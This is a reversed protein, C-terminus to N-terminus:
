MLLVLSQVCFLRHWLYFNTALGRVCELTLGHLCVATFFPNWSTKLQNAGSIGAHGLMDWHSPEAPHPHVARTRFCLGLTSWIHEPMSGSNCSGWFTFAHRQSLIWNWPWGLTLNGWRWGWALEPVGGFTGICPGEGTRSQGQSKQLPPMWLSKTDQRVALMLGPMETQETGWAYWGFFVCLPHAIVLNRHGSCPWKAYNGQERRSCPSHWGSEIQSIRGANAPTWEFRSWSCTLHPGFVHPHLCHDKHIMNRSLFQLNWFRKTKTDACLGRICERAQVFEFSILASTLLGKGM